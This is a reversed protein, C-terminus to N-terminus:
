RVVMYAVSPAVVPAANSWECTQVNGTGQELPRWAGCAWVHATPKPGHPKRSVPSALSHSTGAEVHGAVATQAQSPTLAPVTPESADVHITVRHGTAQAHMPASFVLALAGAAIALVPLTVTSPNM